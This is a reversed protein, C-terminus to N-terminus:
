NGDEVVETGSSSFSNEIDAAKHKSSSKAKM